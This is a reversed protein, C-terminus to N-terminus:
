SGIRIYINVNVENVRGYGDPLSQILLTIYHNTTNYVASFQGIQEGIVTGNRTVAKNVSDYCYITTPDTSLIPSITYCDGSVVYETPGIVYKRVNKEFEVAIQRLAAQNTVQGEEDSFFKMSQTVLGVILGMVISLIVMTIVLEILTFGKNNRMAM